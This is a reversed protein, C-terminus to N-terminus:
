AHLHTNECVCQTTQVPIFFRFISRYEIYNHLTTISVPQEPHQLPPAAREPDGGDSADEEGAATM